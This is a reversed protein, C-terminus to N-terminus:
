KMDYRALLKLVDDLWGFEYQGERPEMDIWAFEALRVTNFGAEKMLKIDTEWRDRPWHEPYYDVGIYMSRGPSLAQQGQTVATQGFAAVPLWCGIVIGALTVRRKM